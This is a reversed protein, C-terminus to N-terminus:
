AARARDRAARAYYWAWLPSSVLLSSLMAVVAGVLKWTATFPFVVSVTVAASLTTIIFVARPRDLARLGLSPGQFAAVLVQGVGLLPILHAYEAYQGKYLLQFVQPSATTVLVVYLAVAPALVAGLGVAFRNLRTVTRDGALRAAIPLFLNGLGVLFLSVPAFVNQVAKLAATGAPGVFIAAVFFYLENGSWRAATVGIMWKGYAWHTRVAALRAVLGRGPRVGSRWLGVLSSLVGAAALLGFATAGDLRGMGAAVALGTILMGLYLADNALARGPALTTFFVKRTFERAQIGLLGVGMMAVTRVAPGDHGSLVWGLCALWVVLAIAIVFGLQLVAVADLYTRRDAPAKGPGFVMMPELLLANQLEVSFNVGSSALVFVGYDVPVTHRALVVNLAFSGASVLGQDTVSLLISRLRHAPLSARASEWWGPRATM